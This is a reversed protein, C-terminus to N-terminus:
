GALRSLKSILDVQRACGGKALLGQVQTRITSVSSSRRLAIQEVSLGELLLQLVDQEAQTYGYLEAALAVIERSDDRPLHLMLLLRPQAFQGLATPAEAPLRTLTGKILQQGATCVLMRQVVGSSSCFSLAEALPPASREGLRLLRNGVTNFLQNDRTLATAALANSRLIRGAGDLLLWAVGPMGAALREVAVENRLANVERATHVARQLHPLLRRLRRTADAEFDEHGAARYWCLNTFPLDGSERGDFLVSGLMSGMGCDRGFENYFRSRQLDGLPVLESGRVVVNRRMMGRRGAEQAWVDEQHWYHRFGDVHGPDMNQGLLIAEPEVASHSTFMFSSHAGFLQGLRAMLLPMASPILAHAYISSILDAAM